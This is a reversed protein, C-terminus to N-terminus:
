AGTDARPLTFRFVAGRPENASAWLRGGHASIISRCIALGMGMGSAKTTYFADFVRGLREADIGLGSDHVAVLVGTPGPETSILLQREEAAVSGMAEVANLILNLIVQQIQVRDARVPLVGEALRTNVSVGNRVIGSRAMGIVESVAANLDFPEKRPPAKKFQERIRDIIDGARDMDGVLCGVAERVEDLDPPQMSLFNQAARANNRATAIPQKVEHALSASLEGMMIVRNMHALDSELKRRQQLQRLRFQYFTYLLGLFTVVCLVRFWVTQYYSPAISFDVFTGADNWVGSDNRATIRFRYTGPALDSYFAQRRKGVDQWDRDHGELKYRFSVKDPVALSLATYDIELDHVRPPMNVTANSDSTVEYAHHDASIQEIHVPPPLGNFLLHRPDISQLVGTAFWLRGDPSRAASKFSVLNTRAGDSYDLLRYRVVTDPHVWWRQMESDALLVYGCPTELWWQQEDDRVFGLVGDCPLGNKTDMRQFAGRRLGILGDTPAALLVSGDPEAEIQRPFEGKLKLQFTRVVGNSLLMLEGTPAFVWIGGKPDAALSRGTAVRSDSFQEQVRFNRIRVLKRTSYCAAWIDGNVDETIGQVTGLPRHDPEPLRRFRHNEYLFLGDDVGVWLHGVRDELLSTVHDGPLGDRSGLSFVEGNRISDLSGANGVWITGDRSAIVSEVLDSPLGESKSFTTVNRDRFSDLGGSTAVWILGERDEYIGLVTDSSLGDTAGLHDVAVGRIRYLGNADTGVWLNQDSDRLLARVVIKSGDFNRSIFPTFEGRVFRELGLGPGSRAIGVWLSRDSNEALSVIGDRGPHSRMAKNYYVNSRGEKWHVLATDTGIWFGGEGDPLISDARQFPMGETAGFCHASLDTVRCLPAGDGEYHAMVVWLSGDVDELMDEGHDPFHAAQFDFHAAVRKEVIHTVSRRDRIWFGGIKAPLFNRVEITSAAPYSGPLFHVGDFRFAGMSPGGVWLYGDATQSVWQPGSPLLGDQVRWAKHQYQTIRKSPDLALGRVPTLLLFVLSWTIVTRLRM